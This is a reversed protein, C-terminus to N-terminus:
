PEIRFMTGVGTLEIVRTVMPAVSRLVVSEARVAADILVALGSSDMFTLESMDFVVHSAGRLAWDVASRLEEANTLDLDGVVVILAPAEASRKSTATSSEDTDRSEAM